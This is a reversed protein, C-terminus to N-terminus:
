SSSFICALLNEILLCFLDLCFLGGSRNAGERTAVVSPGSINHKIAGMQGGRYGKGLVSLGVAIPGLSIKMCDIGLSKRVHAIPMQTQAPVGIIRLHINSDNSDPLPSEYSHAGAPVSPTIEKRESIDFVSPSATDARTEM